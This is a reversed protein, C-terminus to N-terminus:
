DSAFVLGYVKKVGNQKLIKSIENLTTGTSIVDDILIVTKNQLYKKQKTNIKYAGTLNEQRSARSLHSQPLTSRVKTITSFNQLFWFKKSIHWSILESQNYSRMVQKWFYMPTPILIIDKKDEFINDEIMKWLLDAIEEWVDKKHYYKGDKIMKQIWPQNYHTCTLVGDFFVHPRECYVHNVFHRSSAKCIYCTPSFMLTKELCNKCLFVGKKHCKYCKKPAFIEKLLHFIM